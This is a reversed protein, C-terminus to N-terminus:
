AATGKTDAIFPGLHDRIARQREWREARIRRKGAIIPARGPASEWGNAGGVLPFRDLTGRNCHHRHCYDCLGRAAHPRDAQGCGKCGEPSTHHWM